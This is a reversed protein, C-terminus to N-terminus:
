EKAVLNIGVIASGTASAFDVKWRLTRPFDPVHIHRISCAGGTSARQM